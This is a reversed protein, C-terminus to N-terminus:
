QWVKGRDLFETGTERNKREIKDVLEDPLYGTHAQIRFDEWKASLVHWLRTAYDLCNCGDQFGMAPVYYKCGASNYAGDIIWKARSESIRSKRVAHGRKSIPQGKLLKNMNDTDTGDDVKPNTVNPWMGYTHVRQWGGRDYVKEEKSPTNSNPPFTKVLTYPQKIVAIFAHGVNLGNPSVISRQEDRRRAVLWVEWDAQVIPPTPQPDKSGSIPQLTNADLFTVHQNKNNPDCQRSVFATGEQTLCYAWNVGIKAHWDKSGAHVLLAKDKGIPQLEFSAFGNFIKAQSQETNKYMYFLNGSRLQMVDLSVNYGSNVSTFVVRSLGNYNVKLVSERDNQQRNGWANVPKGNYLGAGANLSPISEATINLLKGNLELRVEKNGIAKATNAQTSEQNFQTVAIMGLFVTASFVFKPLVQKILYNNHNQM